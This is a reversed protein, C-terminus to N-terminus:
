PGEPNTGPKGETLKDFFRRTPNAFDSLIDKAKKWDSEFIV